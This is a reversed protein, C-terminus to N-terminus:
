PLEDWGNMLKNSHKIIKLLALEVGPSILMILIFLSQWRTIKIIACTLIYDNSSYKFITCSM